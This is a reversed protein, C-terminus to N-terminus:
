DLRWADEFSGPPVDAAGGMLLVATVVGAAVVATTVGAWVWPSVGGGEADSVVAAPDPAAPAPPLVQRALEEPPVIPEPRSIPVVIEGDGGEALELTGEGCSVDGCTVTVLINGPNVPVSVGLMARSFEADRVRVVDGPELGTVQVVIHALRAGIRELATRAQAVLQADADGEGDRLFRRYSESGEVLEGVREQAAALNFLISLEPVLAYARHFADRAAPWDGREAAGTGTHFLDRATAVESASPSQAQLSPTVLLSVVSVLIGLRAQMYARYRLPWPSTSHEPFFGLGRTINPLAKGVLFSAM